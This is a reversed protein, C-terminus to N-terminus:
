DKCRDQQLWSSIFISFFWCQAFAPILNQIWTLFTEWWSVHKIDEPLVTKSPPSVKPPLAEECFSMPKWPCAKPNWLGSRIQERRGWQPCFTVLQRVNRNGHRDWWSPNYGKLSYALMFREEKLNSTLAVVAPFRVQCLCCCVRMRWVILRVM